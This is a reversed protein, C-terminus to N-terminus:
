ANGDKSKHDSLLVSVTGEVLVTLLGALM